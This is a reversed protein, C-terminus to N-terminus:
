DYRVHINNKKLFKKTERLFNKKPLSKRENSNLFHVNGIKNKKYNFNNIAGYHFFSSIMVGNVKTKNVLKLVHEKSGCGGHAIVPIKVTKCLSDITDLDFGKGLGEHIVSSLIIEGAGNEEIIKAWKFPNLKTIERGNSHVVFLKGKIQTYEINVSITSSGFTKAAKYIFSPNKIAESNISVRDAGSNLIKKIQDITRIGGGVLFPIHINKSTTKIFKTLNNTGYLSAVVDIYFIEDALSKHYYNAYDLPDGLIRLGELNIGKILQGNKIDLRPIIRIFRKKKINKKLKKM